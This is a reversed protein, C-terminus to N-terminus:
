TESLEVARRPKKRDAHSYILSTTIDSHGLLSGTTLIDRRYGIVADLFLSKTGPNTISIMDTGGSIEFPLLSDILPLCFGSVSLGLPIWACHQKGQTDQMPLWGELSFDAEGKGVVSGSDAPAGGEGPRAPGPFSYLKNEMLVVFQGSPLIEAYRGDPAGLSDKANQVGKQCVVGLVYFKPGQPQDQRPAKGAFGSPARALLGASLFLLFGAPLLGGIRTNV